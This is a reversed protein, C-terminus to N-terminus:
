NPAYTHTHASRKGHWNQATFLCLVCVFVYRRLLRYVALFELLDSINCDMVFGVIYDRKTWYYTCNCHVMATTNIKLLIDM